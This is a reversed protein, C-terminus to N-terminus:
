AAMSMESLVAGIKAAQRWSPTEAFFGQRQHGTKAKINFSSQEQLSALHKTVLGPPAVNAIRLKTIKRRAALRGAYLRTL